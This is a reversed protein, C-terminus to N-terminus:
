SEEFFEYAKQIKVFREQAITQQAKSENAFRDPHHIKVLRRYAKKIENMSAHESVGLIEANIKRLNARRSTKAQQSRQQQSAEEYGQYMNIVSKFDRHSLKLQYNMQELLKLERQNVSGDIFALGTLFYMVQMRKSKPKLHKNLWFSVTQFKIPHKYAHILTESFDCDSEPFYRIFYSNIYNIKDRVDATDSQILRAALRLYAKMLNGEKFELKHPFVGADWYHDYRSARIYYVLVLIFITGFLSFVIWAAIREEKERQRQDRLMEEYIRGMVTDDYMEIIERVDEADDLSHIDNSSNIEDPVANFNEQSNSNLSVAILFLAVAFITKM